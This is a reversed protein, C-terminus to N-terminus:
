LYDKLEELETQALKIRKMVRLADQSRDPQRGLWLALVKDADLRLKVREAYASPSLKGSDVEAQLLQKATDIALRRANSALDGTNDAVLSLEFDLVKDSMLLTPAHPDACESDPPKTSAASSSSSFNGQTTSPPSPLLGLIEIDHRVVTTKLKHSRFPERLALRLDLKASRLGDHPSDAVKRLKVHESHSSDDLLAEMSVRAKFALSEKRAFINAVFNGNAGWAWVELYLKARGLRAMARKASASGEKKCLRSEQVIKSGLDIRLVIKEESSPPFDLADTEAERVHGDVQAVKAKVRFRTPIISEHHHFTLTSMEVLIIGEPVTEDVFVRSETVDAKRWDPPPQSDDTASQLMSKLEKGRLTAREASRRDGKKLSARGDRVCDALAAEAARRFEKWEKQYKVQEVRELQATGTELAKAKRMLAIAGQVDGSKKLAIAKRKTAEVVDFCVEEKEEVTSPLAVESLAEMAPMELEITRAERMKAVAGATDGSRKLQLAEEKLTKVREEASPQPADQLTAYEALLEEDDELFEEDIEVDDDDDLGLGLKGMAEIEAASLM